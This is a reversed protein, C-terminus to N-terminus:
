MGLLLSVGPAPPDSAPVFGRWPVVGLISLNIAVYILAVGVISILISRPIVKGPEKVEDGIFCVDYYGLYDYVGIRTAAGLGLLFGLSFRFGDPPFDFALEPRFHFAGTVVVAGTTLM